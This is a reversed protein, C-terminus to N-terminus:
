AYQKEGVILKAILEPTLVEIDDPVNQGTTVYSVPLQFKHVLNYLAGYTATEDLKTFLLKDIAVGDFNAIITELDSPKSTMSLVLFTEDPNIAQLLPNLEAVPMKQSYNRGATDMLILDKDSLRHLAQKCDEPSYVIELPINLIDAYTRLQEVAAIRYTDSTILGIKKREHLVQHAALKAITTTKGVGTPGIISVVRADGAIPTPQLRGSMEQRIVDQIKLQLSEASLNAPDDTGRLAEHILHLALTDEVGNAMLTKQMQRAAPPLGSPQALLFSQLLSRLQQVEELVHKERGEERKPLPTGEGSSPLPPEAPRTVTPHQTERNAVPSGAPRNTRKGNEEEVAAIVEIATKGFLGFLGRAKIKKTSLIIADHGLDKRIRTIAEPMEQVVYRKVIM